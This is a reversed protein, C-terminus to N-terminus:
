HLIPTYSEFNISKDEDGSGKYRVGLPYPYVPRTQLIKNNRVKATLLSQPAEGGRIWAELATVADINAPGPGDLGCHVVGPLLFLRAFKGTEEAGGMFRTVDEYWKISAYAPVAADSWGHLVIMKGGRKKFERLDPNDADFVTTMEALRSKEKEYDFDRWNVDLALATPYALYKMYETAALYHWPKAGSRGPMVWNLWEVESGYPLGGYLVEGSSTVSPAYLGKVAKIQIDTLCKEETDASCALTAPDFDCQRPDSIIGDTLGDKGDCAQMAANKLFNVFTFDMVPQDNEGLIDKANAMCSILNVKTYNITPGRAIVGDYDEPYRQASMVGAQGGKSCGSIISIDPEKGYYAKIIAKSAIALVHNARHGFDIRGQMNNRAWKGDFGFATHGGDHSITAYKRFIGAMTREPDVHGCFGDCASMFYNGNWDTQLPLRLQFRITPTVYGEIVCHDPLKKLNQEIPAGTMLSYRYAKAAEEKSM